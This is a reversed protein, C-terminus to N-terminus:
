IHFNDEVNLILLMAIMRRPMELLMVDNNSSVPGDFGNEDVKTKLIFNKKVNCKILILM